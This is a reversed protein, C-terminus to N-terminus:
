IRAIRGVAQEDRLARQAQVNTSAPVLWVALKILLAALGNRLGMGRVGSVRRDRDAEALLVSRRYRSQEVLYFYDGVAVGREQAAAAIV